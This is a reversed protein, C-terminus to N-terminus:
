SAAGTAKTIAARLMSARFDAIRAAKEVSAIDSAVLVDDVYVVPAYHLDGYEGDDANGTYVEVVHEGVHKIAHLGDYYGRMWAERITFGQAVLTLMADRAPGPTHQASM